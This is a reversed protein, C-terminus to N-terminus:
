CIKLLPLLASQKIYKGLGGPGITISAFNGRSAYSFSREAFV